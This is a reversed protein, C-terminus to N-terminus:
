CDTWLRVGTKDPNETLRGETVAVPLHRSPLITLRAALHGVASTGLPVHDGPVRIVRQGRAKGGPELGTPAERLGHSLPTLRALVRTYYLSTTAEFGSDTGVLLWVSGQSDARVALTAPGRLIKLEWRRVIAGDSLECPQSNAVNGLVLANRGGIAQNGKDFGVLQVTGFEDVATMPEVDGAGAKVFVSEGPSGGVGGCGAPVDTAIEVALHADYRAGAELGAIRGKYFMFLDDSHNNGSIYLASRGPAVADPLPRYDAVLEYFPEQGAPYEAFGPQWGQAGDAFNFAFMFANGPAAPSGCDAIALALALVVLVRSTRM